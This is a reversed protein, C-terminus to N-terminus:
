LRKTVQEIAELLVADDVNDDVVTKLTWYEFWEHTSEEKPLLAEVTRHAERDDIDYVEFRLVGSGRHANHALIVFRRM